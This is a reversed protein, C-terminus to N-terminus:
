APRRHLEARERGQHVEGMGGPVVQRVIAQARQALHGTAQHFLPPDILDRREPAVIGAGERRSLHRADAAVARLELKHLPHRGIDMMDVDKKGPVVAGQARDFAHEPHVQCCVPGEGIQEKDRLLAQRPIAPISSNLPPTKVPVATM